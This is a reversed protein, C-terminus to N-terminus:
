LLADRQRLSAPRPLLQPRRSRGGCAESVCSARQPPELRVRLLVLRPACPERRPVHSRRCASTVAEHFDSGGPALPVCRARSRLGRVPLLCPPARRRSATTMFRRVTASKLAMATT